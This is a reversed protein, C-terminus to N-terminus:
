LESMEKHSKFLFLQYIVSISIATWLLRYNKKYDNSLSSIHDTYKWSRCVEFLANIYTNFITPIFAKLTHTPSM